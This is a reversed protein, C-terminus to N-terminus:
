SSASGRPPSRAAGAGTRNDALAGDPLDVLVLLARDDPTPEFVRAVLESLEAASLNAEKM